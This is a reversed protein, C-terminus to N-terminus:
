RCKWSWSSSSANRARLPRDCPVGHAAEFGHWASPAPCCNRLSQRLQGCGVRGAVVGGDGANGAPDRAVFDAEVGPQLVARVPDAAAAWAAARSAPMGFRGSRRGRPRCRGRGAASGPAALVLHQVAQLDARRRVEDVAFALVPADRRKGRLPRRLLPKEAKRSMSRWASRWAPPTRISWTMPRARSQTMGRPSGRRRPRRDRLKGDVIQQTQDREFRLAVARDDQALIRPVRGSPKRSRSFWAPMAPRRTMHNSRSPACKLGGCCQVGSRRRWSAGRVIQGGDGAPPLATVDGPAARRLM